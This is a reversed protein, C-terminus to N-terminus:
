SNSPTLIDQWHITSGLGGFKSYIRVQILALFTKAGSSNGSGQVKPQKVVFEKLPIWLSNTM